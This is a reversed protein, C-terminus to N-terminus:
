PEVAKLTIFQRLEDESKPLGNKAGSVRLLLLLGLRLAGGEHDRQGGVALNEQGAVEVKRPPEDELRDTLRLVDLPPVARM